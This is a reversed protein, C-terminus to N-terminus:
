AEKQLDFTKELYQSANTGIMVSFTGHEFVKNNHYDTYVLDDMSIEFTIHKVEFAEFWVKAFQKLEKTPRSIKAFHDRIYLQVTEYGPIHSDNKIQVEAKLTQNEHLTDNSINLKQYNFNSYSLGYGFPYKPSNEVDLYYSVFENNIGEEKPRGTNLHNYYIPIQGENRPFSMTLKGSPNAIGLLLEAIAHNAESGLFWTELIADSCSIDDLILPRGNYLITVVKKNLKKALHVWSSQNRPINLLSKSHAEGSENIHEGIAVLVIDAEKIKKEDQENIDSSVVHDNVYFIEADYDKLADLLSVNLQNNGHWSWPGNTNKSTSYEGVLAIKQKKNLPLVHDNKLLVACELAIKKAQDLHIKSRVLELEKIQNAGKYPNEFLGLEEKLKLIRYVSLDIDKEDIDNEKILEKVHKVYCNSAMEIDLGARIGQRAAEKDSDAVGHAIIQHLSDYDSITVGEFKWMDRLVEKLLFSNVTAPIGDLTNFATMILKAGSRIAEEYAPLYNQYLSLRSLDVTHYDRGAEAAGYGAFHKVCSVLNGEQRIDGQQFGEVMKRTFAKLLTVDEGFGEVVRGWRPDRSLDAMPAFTVHIGATQAEIASIRAVKYALDPNWSCSLALPVPFITEYGHIIDAMFMLPIKHRSRELYLSQVKIMEEANRIGLVSGASFVEDHSLHLDYVHGSVENEAERIFFFPAIQLMQGIKEEITLTSILAKIDM